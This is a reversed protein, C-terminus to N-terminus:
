DAFQILSNKFHLYEERYRKLDAKSAYKIGFVKNTHSVNESTEEYARSYSGDNAEVTYRKVFLGNKKEESTEKIREGPMVKIDTPKGSWQPSFIYFQVKGDPSTFVASDFGESNTYSKLSNDASFTEPYEVEFWAGSFKKYTAPVKTETSNTATKATDSVENIVLSDSSNQTNKVENKQCGVLSFVVLVGFIRNITKQM